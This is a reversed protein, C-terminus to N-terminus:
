PVVWFPKSVMALERIQEAVRGSANAGRRSVGDHNRTPRGAAVRSARVNV